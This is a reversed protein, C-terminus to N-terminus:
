MIYISIANVAKPIESEYRTGLWRNGSRVSAGALLFISEIMSKVEGKMSDLTSRFM